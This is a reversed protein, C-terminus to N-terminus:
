WESGAGGGDFTGGGFKEANAKRRREEEDRKERAKQAAVAASSAVAVDRQKREQALEKKRKEEAALRSARQEPTENALRKKTQHRSYAVLGVIGGGIGVLWLWGNGGESKKKADDPSIEAACAPMVDKLVAWLAADYNNNNKLHPIAKQEVIRKCTVDPLAGGLGRGPCIVFQGKADKTKPKILIIVGNDLKKQGVGWRDGLEAAYMKPDYDGLDKVTIVMIQNSTRKSFARLSDNMLKAQDPKLVGAFDNVFIATDPRTPFDGEAAFAKVSLMLCVAMFLLVNLRKM